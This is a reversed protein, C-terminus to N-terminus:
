YFLTLASLLLYSNCQPCSPFAQMLWSLELLWRFSAPFPWTLLQLLFTGALLLCNLSTATDSMTPGQLGHHSNSYREVHSAFQVNEAFFHGSLIKVKFFDRKIRLALHITLPHFRLLSGLFLEQPLGPFLCHHHPSHHQCHFHLAASSPPTVHFPTILVVGHGQSKWTESM